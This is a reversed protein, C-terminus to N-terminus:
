EMFNLIGDDRLVMGRVDVQIDNQDPSIRIADTDMTSQFSAPPLPAKVPYAHWSVMTSGCREALLKSELGSDFKSEGTAPLSHVKYLASVVSESVGASSSSAFQGSVLVVLHRIGDTLTIQFPISALIGFGPVLLRLRLSENTERCGYDFEIFLSELQPGIFTEITSASFLLGQSTRGEWQQRKADRQVALIEGEAGRSHNTLLVIVISLTLFIEIIKKTKMKM